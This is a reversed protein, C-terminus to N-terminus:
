KLIGKSELALHLLREIEPSTRSAMAIATEGSSDKRNIDAGHTLLVKVCEIQSYKSALILPTVGQSDALDINGGHELGLEIVRARGLFSAFLLPTWGSVAECNIVETMDYDNFYTTLKEMENEDILGLVDIIDGPPKATAPLGADESSNM